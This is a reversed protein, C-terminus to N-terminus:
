SIAGYSRLSQNSRPQRPLFSPYNRDAKLCNLFSLCLPHSIRIKYVFRVFLVFVFVAFPLLILTHMFPVYYKITAQSLIFCIMALHSLLLTDCINMYMKKYPRCLSIFVAACMFFAGRIFWFDFLFAYHLLEPGLVNAISLLFYIGSFSRMDRRGDLGDRSCFHFKEMFIMLCIKDLRLKSLVKKFIKFPYLVLLLLPVVNFMLSILSAFIAGFIFTASTIRISNDLESAFNVYSYDGSLSYTFINNTSTMIITQYLIRLYSLLIFTAFVDILDNKTDWGRRLRVFCRHFPRWLFVIVRFNRDHLEICIWTVLILLMPYFATIYGLIARHYLTLKSSICFPPMNRRLRSGVCVRDLM